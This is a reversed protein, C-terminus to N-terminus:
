YFDKSLYARGSDGFIIVAYANEPLDNIKKAMAAAVGGSSPGVLVGHNRSLNKLMAISEEDSVTIIEDVISKNFVPSSWDMGLGELKYPKPHGNTSYWSNCSDVAYVKMNPNQEKLYMGAGSVTGGTGSAAIFHTIKGDTQQWIEPGIGSYHADRNQTNFYQNPMFSNPTEKHLRMATSHYSQSDELPVHAPCKVVRAGYAKLTDYKEKSVKESVCVIVNYGKQAGIMAIAIGHNGSSADVLTGGPKLNGSKEAQEIMYLASRDKISGGPNLYELKAYIQAPTNFPIRILPTNGIAHAFTDTTSRTSIM